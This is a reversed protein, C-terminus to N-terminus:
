DLALRSAWRIAAKGRGFRGALAAGDSCQGQMKLWLTLRKRACGKPNDRNVQRGHAAFACDSGTAGGHARARRRHGEDSPSPSLSPDLPADKKAVASAVAPETKGRTNPADKRPESL